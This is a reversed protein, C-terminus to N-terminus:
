LFISLVRSPPRHLIRFSLESMDPVSCLVYTITAVPAEEAGTTLVSQLLQRAWYLPGLPQVRGALTAKGLRVPPQVRQAVQAERTDM